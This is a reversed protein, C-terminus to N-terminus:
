RSRTPSTRWCSRAWRSSETHLYRTNTNLVRSQRAIAEAVRPNGHGVHPVNNVTDLYRRGTDDYLYAGVGRVVHIPDAYSLSLSSGLVTKRQQNLVRKRM